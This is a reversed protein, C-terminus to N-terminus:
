PPSSAAVSRSDPLSMLRGVAAANQPEFVLNGHYALVKLRPEVIKIVPGVSVCSPVCVDRLGSALDTSTTQSSKLPSPRMSTRTCLVEFVLARAGESAMFVVTKPLIGVPQASAEVRTCDHAGHCMRVAGQVGVCEEEVCHRQLVRGRPNAAHSGLLVEVKHADVHDM